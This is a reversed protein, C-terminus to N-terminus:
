YARDIIRKKEMISRTLEINKSFSLFRKEPVVFYEGLLKIKKYLKEPIIEYFDIDVRSVAFKTFGPHEEYLGYMREIARDDNFTRLVPIVLSCTKEVEYPNTQKAHFILDYKQKGNHIFDREGFLVLNELNNDLAKDAVGDLIIIKGM